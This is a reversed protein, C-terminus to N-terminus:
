RFLDGVETAEIAGAHAAWRVLDGYDYLRESPNERTGGMSNAFDLCAEGGILELEEVPRVGETTLVDTADNTVM